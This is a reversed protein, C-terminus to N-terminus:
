VSIVGRSYNKCEINAPMGGAKTGTNGNLWRINKLDVPFLNFIFEMSRRTIGLAFDIIRPIFSITTGCEYGIQLLSKLMSTHYEMIAACFSNGSFNWSYLECENYRVAREITGNFHESNGWNKDIHSIIHLKVPYNTQHHISIKMIVVYWFM